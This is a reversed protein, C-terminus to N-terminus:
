AVLDAVLAGLRLRFSDFGFDEAREAAAAGLRSRRVPDAVLGATRDVLESVSRFQLGDVGDRVLEAPGAAGFVVPAIGAAMAEVVSIGFHEFLDPNKEEDEGLGAGHWFISATHFLDRLVSGPANLLVHIPYGAAAAKVQMAYDRNAPECGGVLHLEWGPARGSDHLARFAHVLELQKKCHGIRRDIFRGVSLVIPKRLEHSPAGDRTMFPPYLVEADIGWLREIWRATFASNAVVRTYSALFDARGTAPMWDDRVRALHTPLAPSLALVRATASRFQRRRKGHPSEPLGPFHVVYLGCTARNVVPSLYTCNVFLDYGASARSISDDDSVLRHRTRSLDLGLRERLYSFDIADPGLLDVEHDGALAQAIGGAFQEGGGATRWYRDYVGVRM